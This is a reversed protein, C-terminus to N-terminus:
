QQEAALVQIYGALIEFIGFFKIGHRNLFAAHSLYTFVVQQLHFQVQEVSAAVVGVADACSLGVHEVQAAEEVEIGIHLNYRSIFM